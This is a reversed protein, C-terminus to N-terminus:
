RHGSSYPAQYIQFKNGATALLQHILHTTARDREAVETKFKEFDDRLMGIAREQEYIIHNLRAEEESLPKKNENLIWYSRDGHHETDFFFRAKVGEKKIDHQLAQAKDNDYWEEFHCFAVYFNWGDPTTKELLDVRQVKGIQETHFCHAIYGKIFKERNEGLPCRPLSRTDIRPIYIPLKTDFDTSSLSAM